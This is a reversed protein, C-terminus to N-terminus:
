LMTAGAWADQEPESTVEDNWCEAKIWREPDKWAPVFEGPNANARWEKQTTLATLVKQIPPKLKKWEKLANGKGTKKPYESWFRDFEDEEYGGGDAPATRTIQDKKEIIEEVREERETDRFTVPVHGGKNSREKERQRAKRDKDSDASQEEIFNPLAYSAGDHTLLGLRRLEELESKLSTPDLRLEFAIDEIPALIGSDADHGLYLNLDIYRRYLTDSLSHHVRSKLTDCRLKIWFGTLPPALPTSNASM